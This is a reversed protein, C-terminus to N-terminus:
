LPLHQVRNFPDEPEGAKAIIELDDLCQRVSIQLPHAYIVGAFETGAAQRTAAEVLFDQDFTFLVRGQMTARNFLDPDAMGGVGDEQVSSVDIGRWRLGEIIARPINEDLYLAISM